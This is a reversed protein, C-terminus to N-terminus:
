VLTFVREGLGEILRCAVPIPDADTMKAAWQQCNAAVEDSSLVRELARQLRHLQRRRSPAVAAVGLRKLRAANDSQDNIRPVVVQPLGAALAAASTGIGGHHVIARSRALLRGLPVFGFHHVGPPLSQPLQEPFRTLLVCRCGLIRCVEAAGRFFDQAFPYDSGNTFVIPPDGAELFAEFDPEAPV